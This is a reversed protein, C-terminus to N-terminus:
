IKGTIWGLLLNLPFTQVARNFNRKLQTAKVNSEILNFITQKKTRNESAVELLSDVASKIYSKIELFSKEITEEKLEVLFYDLVMKGDTQFFLISPLKINENPDISFRLKGIISTNLGISHMSRTQFGDFRKLDEAFFEDKTHLHFVSLYNGSISDLAKWYKFNSLVESVHPNEFDFLIFAFAIARNEAHHKECINFIKEKLGSPGLEELEEPSQFKLSVM